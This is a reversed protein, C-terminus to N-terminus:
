EAARDTDVRLGPTARPAPAPRRWAEGRRTLRRLGWDAVAELVPLLSQAEGTLTYQAGTGRAPDAAPSKALLGDAVLAALQAALVQQSVGPLGRRIAAFTRYELAVLLLIRAKWKGGVLGLVEEVPCPDPKPRKPAYPM